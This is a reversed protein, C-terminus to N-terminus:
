RKRGFAFYAVPGVFNVFLLAAWMPKSGRIEDAPRRRLDALAAIKLGMEVIGAGVTVRKQGPSLDSWRKKQSRRKM